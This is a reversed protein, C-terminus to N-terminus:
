MNKKRLNLHTKATTSPQSLVNNRSSKYTNFNKKKESKTKSQAFFLDVNNLFDSWKEEDQGNRIFVQRGM